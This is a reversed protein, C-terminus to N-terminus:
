ETTQWREFDKKYYNYIMERVRETDYAALQTISAHHINRMVGLKDWITQDELRHVEVEPERYYVWAPLYMVHYSGMRVLSKEFYDLNQITGFYAGNELSQIARKTWTIIDWDVIFGEDCNHKYLSEWRTLPNRIVTYYDYDPYQLALQDYTAHINNFVSGKSAPRKGEQIFEANLGTQWNRHNFVFYKDKKEMQALWARTVSIGGCKPIHIYCWQRDHAVM